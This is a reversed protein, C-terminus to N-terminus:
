KWSCVVLRHLLDYRIRIVYLTYTNYRCVTYWILPILRWVDSVCVREGVFSMFCVNGSLVFTWKSVFSFNCDSLHLCVDLLSISTLREKQRPRIRILTPAFDAPWMNQGQYAFWTKADGCLLLCQVAKQAISGPTRSGSYGHLYGLTQTPSRLSIQTPLAARLFPHFEWGGERSVSFVSIFLECHRTFNLRHKLTQTLPLNQKKQKNIQECQFLNKSDHFYPMWRQNEFLHQKNGSAFWLVTSFIMVYGYSM